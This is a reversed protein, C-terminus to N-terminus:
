GGNDKGETIEKKTTVLDYFNGVNVLKKSSRSQHQCSDDFNM